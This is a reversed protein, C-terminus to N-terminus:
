DSNKIRMISELREQELRKKQKVKEYAIKNKAKVNVNDANFTKEKERKAMDKLLKKRSAPGLNKWVKKLDIDSIEVDSNIFTKQYKMLKGPHPKDLKVRCEMERKERKTLRKAKERKPLEDLKSFNGPGNDEPRLPNKKDSFYSSINVNVPENKLAEIRELHAQQPLFVDNFYDTKSFQKRM